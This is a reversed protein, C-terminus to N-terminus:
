TRRAAPFNQSKWFADQGAQDLSDLYANLADPEDLNVPPAVVEARPTGVPTAPATPTKPTPTTVSGSQIPNQGRYQHYAATIPQPSSKLWPNNALTDEIAKAGEPTFVWPDTKAITRLEERRERAVNKSNLEDLDARGRQYANDSVTQLIRALGLGTGNTKLEEEIQVGIQNLTQPMTPAPPKVEEQGTQQRTQVQYAENQAKNLKSMIEDYRKQADEASKDIREVVPVGDKDKFKDPVTTGEPGPTAPTEVPADEKPVVVESEPVTEAPTTEAKLKDLDEATGQGPDPNDPFGSQNTSPAVVEDVDAPSVATKDNM